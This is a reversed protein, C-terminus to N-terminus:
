CPLTSKALEHRNSLNILTRYPLSWCSSFRKPATDITRKFHLRVEGRVRRAFQKSHEGKKQGSFLFLSFVSSAEKTREWCRSTWQELSQERLWSSTWTMHTPFGVSQRFAVLLLFFFIDDLAGSLFSLFFSDSRCCEKKKHWENKSKETEMTGKLEQELSTSPSCLCSDSQPNRREHLNWDSVKKRKEFFKKGGGGGGEM